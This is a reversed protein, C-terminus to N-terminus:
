RREFYPALRGFCFFYFLSYCSFGTLAQTASSFFDFFGNQQLITLPQTFVRTHSKFFLYFLGM